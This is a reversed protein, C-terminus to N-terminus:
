NKTLTEVSTPKTVKWIAETLAVLSDGPVIALTDYCRKAYETPCEFRTTPDEASVPVMQCPMAQQGSEDVLACGIAYATQLDAPLKDLTELEGLTLSRVFVEEDGLKVPYKRRNALKNLVSM